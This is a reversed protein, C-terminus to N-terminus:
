EKRVSGSGGIHSSVQPNGKYRVDGSGAINAQLNVSASVEVTGSGAIDASANEALLNFGHFDGAGMVTVAVKRTQGEVHYSGSGAISAKFLPVDLKGNINGSGAIESSLEEESSYGGQLTISGSGAVNIAKLNPTSVRVKFNEEVDFRGGNRMKITLEGNENKLEVYKLLNDDGSIVLDQTPGQMLAVDIPGSVSIKQFAAVSRTQTIVRGSGRHRVCAALLCVVTLSLLISAVYKM